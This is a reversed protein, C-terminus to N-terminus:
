ERTYALANQLPTPSVKILGDFPRDMQVVLFLAGGISAAGLVITLLFGQPNKPSPSIWRAISGAIAGVIIAWIIQAM